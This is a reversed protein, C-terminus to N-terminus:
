KSTEAQAGAIDAVMGSLHKFEQGLVVVVGGLQRTEERGARAEEHAARAEDHSARAEDRALKVNADIADLSPVQADLRDVISQLLARVDAEM